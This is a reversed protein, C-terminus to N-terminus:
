ECVCSRFGEAAPITECESEWVEDVTDILRDIDERTHLAMLSARFRQQSLPVAPYEISNVFIGRDHFRRAARRIDMGEPVRLPLIPSPSTLHFGLAELRKHAYRINAHLRALLEPERDLVDLGGLVAAIVVPPLSASFMYSRSFYRLFDVIPKSATVFGGTVGFAKSFTGMTIDIKGEVGFYEATGRGSEGMVGSGHADDLLIIFERDSKMRVIQDLPALDGDMSYVGEVGVYTDGNTQHRALLERLAEMDNHPFRIGHQGAMKLGDCFSAHSYADYVIADSNGLLGTVLGVNAGYGSSFILCAEARKFAALREELRCHLETYGNLLPPGGVGIGYERIAREVQACVYPHNALGLYNNSGFMLMEKKAGTYPDIVVVQRDAPSVIRRMSFLSRDNYLGDLFSELYASKTKLPHNRGRLFIQHLNFNEGGRYESNEFM